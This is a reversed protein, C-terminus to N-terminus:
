TAVHPGRRRAAFGVAALGLITGAAIVGATAGTSWGTSDDSKQATVVPKAAGGPVAGDGAPSALASGAGAAAMGAAVTLVALATRIGHAEVEEDLLRELEGEDFTLAIQDGETELM